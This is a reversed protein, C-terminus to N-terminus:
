GAKIMFALRVHDPASEPDGGGNITHTHGGAGDMAHSHSGASSTNESRGGKNSADWTQYPNGGGSYASVTPIHSHNGDNHIGHTHNGPNDTTFATHPRGTTWRHATKGSTDGAASAGRIFQNRLDPLHDDPFLAHLGPNQTANFASGDALLYGAPPTLSPYMIVTGAPVGVHAVTAAVTM